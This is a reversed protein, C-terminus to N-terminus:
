KIPIWVEEESNPIEHGLYKDGMVEFHPHDDLAFSWLNYTEDKALSSAIHMGIFKRELNKEIRPETIKLM